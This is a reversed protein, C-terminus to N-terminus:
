FDALRLSDATRKRQLFRKYHHSYERLQNGNAPDLPVYQAGVTCLPGDYTGHLGAIHYNDLVLPGDKSFKPAEGPTRCGCEVIRCKMNEMDIIWFWLSRIGKYTFMGAFDRSYSGLTCDMQMIHETKKLEFNMCDLQGFVQADVVHHAGNNWEMTLKKITSNSWSVGIGKITDYNKLPQFSFAKKAKSDVNLERGGKMLALPSSLYLLTAELQSFTATGREWKDLKVKFAEEALTDFTRMKFFYDKQIGEIKSALDNFLATYGVQDHRREIDMGATEFKSGQLRRAIEILEEVDDNLLKRRM